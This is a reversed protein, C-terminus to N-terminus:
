SPSRVPDYQSSHYEVNGRINSWYFQAGGDAFIRDSLSILAPGTATTHSDFVAAAWSTVLTCGTVLILDEMREVPLGMERSWDFWSDANDRAYDEFVKTRIADRRRGGRPLSLLAGRGRAQCKYTQGSARDIRFYLCISVILSLIM